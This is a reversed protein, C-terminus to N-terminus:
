VGLAARMVEVPAERGTWHRLAAAGQRVLMEAGADPLVRLGAREAAIMWPTRAPVYVMDFAACGHACRTLDIGALLEDSSPGGQMGCSTAQIVVSATELARAGGEEGFGYASAVCGSSAQQAVSAVSWANARQRALVTVRRAGAGAVGVAAARAAGGAGLVVVEGRAPDAGHARMAALLGEVDTNHALFRDGHRVLTNVAGVLRTSPDTRAHAMVATKHPLTVNAGDFGLALLGDVAAGLRDPTVDFPVYVGQLDLADLAARMMAPSRSHAVPHGLLALRLM